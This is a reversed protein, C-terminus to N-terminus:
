LGPIIESLLSLDDAYCLLMIISSLLLDKSCQLRNMFSHIHNKKILDGFSKINLNVFMESASNYQPINLLRWLSNNYSIRLEEHWYCYM